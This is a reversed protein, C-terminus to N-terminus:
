LLNKKIKQNFDLIKLGEKVTYIRIPVVDSSSKFDAITLALKWLWNYCLIRYNANWLLDTNPMPQSCHWFKLSGIKILSFTLFHEVMRKGEHKLRPLYLSNFTEDLLKHSQFVSLRVPSIESKCELIKLLTIVPFFM